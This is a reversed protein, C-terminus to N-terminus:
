DVTDVLRPLTRFSILLPLAQNQEHSYQDSKSKLVLGVVSSIKEIGLLACAHVSGNQRSFTTATM